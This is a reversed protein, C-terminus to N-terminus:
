VWETLTREAGRVVGTIGRRSTTFSCRSDPSPTRASLVNRTFSCSGRRGSSEYGADLFFLLLWDSM